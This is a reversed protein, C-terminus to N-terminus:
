NDLQKNLLKIYMRPNCVMQIMIIISIVINTGYKRYFKFPNIVVLIPGVRTMFENHDVFRVMLNHLM